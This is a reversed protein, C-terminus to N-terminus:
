GITKLNVSVDRTFTVDKVSFPVGHLAGLDDGRMVVEEAEKAEAMASEATGTVYANIMPNIAEIRELLGRVLEVPSLKKAKILGALDSASMWCIDENNM